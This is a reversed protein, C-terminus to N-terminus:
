HKINVKVQRGIELGTGLGATKGRKGRKLSTGELSSSSYHQAKQGLKVYKRKM